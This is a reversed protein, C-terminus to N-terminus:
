LTTYVLTFLCSIDIKCTTAYTYFFLNFLCFCFCVSFFIANRLSMSTTSTANSAHLFASAALLSSSAANSNHIYAPWGAGPYWSILICFKNHLICHWEGSTVFSLLVGFTFAKFFLHFSFFYSLFCCCCCFNCEQPVYKNNLKCKSGAPLCKSGTPLYRSGSPLCKSSQLQSFHISALRCWSILICSKNHLTM